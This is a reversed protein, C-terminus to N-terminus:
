TLTKFDSDHFKRKVVLLWAKVFPADIGDMLESITFRGASFQAVKESSARIERGAAKFAYERVSQWCAAEILVYQGVAHTQILICSTDQKQRLDELVDRVRQNLYGVDAPSDGDRDSCSGAFCALLVAIVICVVLILSRKDNPKV